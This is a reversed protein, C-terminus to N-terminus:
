PSRKSRPKFRLRPAHQRLIHQRDAVVARIAEESVATAAAQVAEDRAVLAGKLISATGREKEEALDLASKGSNDTKDLSAGLEILATTMDDQGTWAAIMLATSGGHNTADISAGEKILLRAADVHKKWVAHMLATNGNLDEIDRKAGENCLLQLIDMAGNMAARMLLAIAAPGPEDVNAGAALHAKVREIDHDAIAKYLTDSSAAANFPDQVVVPM